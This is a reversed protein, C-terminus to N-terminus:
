GLFFKISTQADPLCQPLLQFCCPIEQWQPITNPRHPCSAPNCPWHQPCNQPEQLVHLLQHDVKLLCCTWQGLTPLCVHRGHCIPGLPQGSALTRSQRLRPVEAKKFRLKLRPRLSYTDPKTAKLTFTEGYLKELNLFKNLLVTKWLSPPFSPKDYQDLLSAIAQKPDRAYVGWLLQTWWTLPELSRWKLPMGEVRWSWVYDAPNIKNWQTSQTPEPPTCAQSPM